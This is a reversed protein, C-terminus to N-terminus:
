VPARQLSPGTQNPSARQRSQLSIGFLRMKRQSSTVPRVLTYRWGDLL